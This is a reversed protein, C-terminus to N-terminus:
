FTTRLSLALRNGNRDRSDDNSRRFVRRYDLEIDTAPSFAHILRLQPTVSSDRL